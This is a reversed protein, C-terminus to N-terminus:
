RTDKKGHGNSSRLMLSLFDTEYESILGEGAFSYYRNDGIIIHDLISVQMIKGSYVMNRTLKKDASSPTIGGSPHNHALILAAANSKLASEIVERPSVSSSNVTGESLDITDLIQNRSNLYMVKFVEKKLGRMSHYLYDFVEQSSSFFPKELIKSKLFERAVEQVLKIGFANHAGIGDIKQLEKAPAELVGRLNHFRKIAEKAPQKCDRRPTGLSLLLEIIEYDNFGELGSKLFKERLRKRHGEKTNESSM